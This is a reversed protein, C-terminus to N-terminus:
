FTGTLNGNLHGDEVWRKRRGIQTTTVFVTSFITTSTSTSTFQTVPSFTTFINTIVVQATTLASTAQTTVSTSTSVSTVNTSTIATSTSALCSFVFASVLQFYGFIVPVLIGVKVLDKKLVKLPRCPEHYAFPKDQEYSYEPLSSELLTNSLLNELFYKEQKTRIRKQNSAVFILKTSVLFVLSLTLCIAIRM